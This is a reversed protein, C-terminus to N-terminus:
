MVTLYPPVGTECLTAKAQAHAEFHSIHAKSGNLVTWWRLHFTISKLETNLTSTVLWGQKVFYNHIIKLTEAPQNPITIDIAGAKDPNERTITYIVREMSMIMDKISAM